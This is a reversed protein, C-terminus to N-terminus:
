NGLLLDQRKVLRGYRNEGILWVQMKGRNKMLSAPATVYGKRRDEDSVFLNYRTNRDAHSVFRLIIINMNDSQFPIKLARNLPIRNGPTDFSLDCVSFECAASTSGDKMVCHATYDGCITYSREIVSKKPNEITEVIENGRKIVLAEVGQSDRDMVNFKVAQDKRYPVWDGRDLLLVRNISPSVSDEEYNPFLFSDARNEDRWADLNNIRYLERNNSRMHAAFGAVDYNTDWTTQPRSEEVRVHTVKGNQGKTIGTVLEIHTGGGPRSPPRFIIDGVKASQASPPKIQIVGKRANPGHLWSPYQTGCQLAYSTYTSCVKGYYCEANTVKGRLNETYLVSQPNEVAALFTKLFIDFGITRGTTRVSSYPVGIYDTGKEFFGGRKPMSDAVPTWRVQSMIRGYDVSREQWTISPPQATAASLSFLSLAAIVTLFLRHNHCGTHM